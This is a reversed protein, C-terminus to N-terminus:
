AEKKKFTVVFGATAQVPVGTKLYHTSEMPTISVLEYGQEAQEVLLAELDKATAPGDLPSGSITWKRVRGIKSSELYVVKYPFM